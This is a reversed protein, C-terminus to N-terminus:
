QPCATATPKGRQACCPLFFPSDVVSKENCIAHRSVFLRKIKPRIVIALFFFLIDIVFFSGVPDPRHYQFFFRAVLFQELQRNDRHGPPHPAVCHGMNPSRRPRGPLGVWVWGDSRRRSVRGLTFRRRRQTPSIRAAHCSLGCAHRRGAPRGLRDASLDYVVRPVGRSAGLAGRHRWCLTGRGDRLRGFHGRHDCCGIRGHTTYTYARDKQKKEGPGTARRRRQSYSQRICRCSRKIPPLRNGM